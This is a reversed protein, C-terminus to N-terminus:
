ISQKAVPPVFIKGPIGYPFAFGSDGIKSPNNFIGIGGQAKGICFFLSPSQVKHSIFRSSFYV